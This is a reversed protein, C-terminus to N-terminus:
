EAVLSSWCSTTLLNSPWRTTPAHDPVRRALEASDDSGTAASAPRWYAAAASCHRSALKAPNPWAGLVNMQFVPWGGRKQVIETPYMLGNNSRYFSYESEVLLDGYIGHEVWTNVKEVLNDPQTYGVV